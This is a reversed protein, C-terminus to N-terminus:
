DPNYFGLISGRYDRQNSRRLIGCETLAYACIAKLQKDTAVTRPVHLTLSARSELRVPMLDGSVTENPHYLPELWEGMLGARAITLPFPSLNVVAISLVDVRRTADFGISTKVVLRPKSRRINFRCNWFAVALSLCSIILPLNSYMSDKGANSSGM